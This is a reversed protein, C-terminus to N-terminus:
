ASAARSDIRAGHKVYDELHYSLPMQTIHFRCQSGSEFMKPHNVLISGNSHRPVDLKANERFCSRERSSRKQYPVSSRM